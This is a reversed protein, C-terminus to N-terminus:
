VKNVMQPLTQSLKQGENLINPGVTEGLIALALIMVAYVFAIAAGRSGRFNKQARDVIPEILYAFFMAFLFVIFTRRGFYLVGLAGVFLSITILVRLTRRDILPM